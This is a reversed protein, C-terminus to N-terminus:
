RTVKISSICQMEVLEFMVCEVVADVVVLRLVVFRANRGCEASDGAEGADTETSVICVASAVVTGVALVLVVARANRECGAFRKEEEVGTEFEISCVNRNEDSGGSDLTMM